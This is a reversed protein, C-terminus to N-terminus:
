GGFSIAPGIAVSKFETNTITQYTAEAGIAFIHGFHIMLGGGGLLAVGNEGPNTIGGYGVGGVVFPALPGVPLTIRLTPMAAGIFRSSIFYGALRGGPAIVTPGAEIGYRGDLNLGGGYPGDDRMPTLITPGIGLHFGRNADFAASDHQEDAHAATSALTVLAYAALAPALRRAVPLLRSQEGALKAQNKM